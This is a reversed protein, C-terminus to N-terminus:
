TELPVAHIMTRTQKPNFVKDVECVLHATLVGAARRDEIGHCLCQSWSCLDDLESLRKTGGVEAASDALIIASLLFFFLFYDFLM